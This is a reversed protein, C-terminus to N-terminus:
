YYKREKRAISANIIGVKNDIKGEIIGLYEKKLISIKMQYTLCEQIYENKAFIVIGSTNRDLRNVIRIKRHLGIRDYYYKVGNSLSTDFHLISPHVAIGDPKNIIIMYEDEYLVKLNMKTPIINSNDEIFNLDVEIIDNIKLTEICTAIKNNIYIHNANRLKILLRSSINFEERLVQKINSYKNNNVTYKLDM